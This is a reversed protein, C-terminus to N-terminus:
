AVGVCRSRRLAAAYAARRTGYTGGILRCGDSLLWCSRDRARLIRYGGPAPYNGAISLVHM